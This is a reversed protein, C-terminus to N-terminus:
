RFADELADMTLPEALPRGCWYAKGASLCLDGRAMWAVAQPYIKLEVQELVRAALRGEDDQPQVPVAAQLVRPGGDLEDTVFHVTAGHEADGAALARRHTHLGAYKPLLSPHVNLMRGRFASIFAAGVIRMFGAMAIIDPALAQLAAALAADYDDRSAYADHALLQVPLGAAAAYALAPAGARSGIVGVLDADIRGDVCAAHLAQLNRGRGSVLVALRARGVVSV